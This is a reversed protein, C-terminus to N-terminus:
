GESRADGKSALSAILAALVIVAVPAAARAGAVALAAISLPLFIMVFRM